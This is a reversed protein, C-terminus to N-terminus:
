AVFWLFYLNCPGDSLYVASIPHRWGGPPSFATLRFPLWRVDATSAQSLVQQLMDDPIGPVHLGPATLAFVQGNGSPALKFVPKGVGNRRDKISLVQSRVDLAPVIFTGTDDGDPFLVKLKEALVKWLPAFQKGIKRDEPSESQRVAIITKANCFPSDIEYPIGDDAKELWLTRVNAEQKSCSDPQCPVQKAIFESPNVFLSTHKVREWLNNIWNTIGTHYQECPFRLLVASRAHEDEPRSFAHLGRRTNRNDDSSGPGLSGTATSGDGHGLINRSRASGCFSSVSTAKTELTTVRAALSSIIQEINAIHANYSAVTQSLTQVCNEFRSISQMLLPLKAIQVFMKNIKEEMTSARYGTGELDPLSGNPSGMNSSSAPVPSVPM